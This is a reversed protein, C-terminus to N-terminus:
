TDQRPRLAFMRVPYLGLGKPFGKQVEKAVVDLGARNFIELFKGESRTVSSDDEDYIDVSGAGDKVSNEKVVIWGDPRRIAAKCRELYAVFQDDTLYLTCWQNWILDYRGPEPTWNELGKVFVEGVTGRGEMTVKRAEAAFAAVPELLDVVDAVNSLFGATVRGIGAGCDVAVTQSPAQSPSSSPHQRLLKAYFAASGRLDTRSIQPYGGLMSNVTPPLASWYHISEKPDIRSDPPFDAAM